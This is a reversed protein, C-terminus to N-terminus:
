DREEPQWISLVGPRVGYSSPRFSPGGWKRKRREVVWLPGLPEPGVPTEEQQCTGGRALGGTDRGCRRWERSLALCGPNYTPKQSIHVVILLCM